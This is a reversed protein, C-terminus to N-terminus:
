PIVDVLVILQVGVFQVYEEHRVRGGLGVVSEEVGPGRGCSLEERSMFLLVMVYVTGHNSVGDVEMVAVDCDDLLALVFGDARPFWFHETGGFGKKYYILIINNIFVCM